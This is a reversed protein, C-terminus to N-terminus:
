KNSGKQYEEIFKKTIDNLKEQPIYGTREPKLVLTNWILGLFATLLFAVMGLFLKKVLRIEPLELKVGDLEAEVEKVRTEIDPINKYTRLDDKIQEIKKHTEHLSSDIKTLSREVEIIKSELLVIKAWLDPLNQSNQM